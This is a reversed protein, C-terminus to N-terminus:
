YCAASEVEHGHRECMERLGKLWRDAHAQNEVDATFTRHTIAHQGSLRITATVKM